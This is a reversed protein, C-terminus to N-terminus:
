SQFGKAKPVKVLSFKTSNLGAKNKIKGEM